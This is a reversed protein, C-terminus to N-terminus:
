NREVQDRIMRRAAKAGSEWNERKGMNVIDLLWQKEKQSLKEGPVVSLLQTEVKQLRKPDKLNCAMYLARAYQYSEGSVKGYGCGILFLPFVLLILIRINLKLYQM